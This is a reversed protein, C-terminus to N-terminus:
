MPSCRSNRGSTGASRRASNPRGPSYPRCTPPRRPPPEVERADRLRGPCATAAESVGPVRPEAPSAPAPVARRDRLRWAKSRDSLLTTLFAGTAHMELWASGQGDLIGVEGHRVRRFGRRRGPGRGNRLLGCGARTAESIAADRGRRGGRGPAGAWVPGLGEATAVARRRRDTGTRRGAPRRGPPRLWAHDLRGRRHHPRDPLHAGRRRRARPCPPAGAVSRLQRAGHRLVRLAPLRRGRALSGRGRLSGLARHLPGPRRSRLSPEPRAHPPGRRVPRPSQRGRLHRLDRSRRHPLPRWAPRPTASRRM